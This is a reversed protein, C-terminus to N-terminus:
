SSPEYALGGIPVVLGRREFNTFGTINGGHPTAAQSGM